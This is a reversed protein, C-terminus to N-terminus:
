AFFKVLDNATCEAWGSPRMPPVCRYVSTPTHRLLLKKSGKSALFVQMGDVFLGPRPEVSAGIRQLSSIAVRGVDHKGVAMASNSQVFKAAASQPVAAGQAVSAGMDANFKGAVCENIISFSPDLALDPILRECVSLRSAHSTAKALVKRLAGSEAAGLSLCEPPLVSRYDALTTELDKTTEVNTCRSAFGPWAHELQFKLRHTEDLQEFVRGTGGFDESSLLYIAFQYLYHKVHGFPSVAKVWDLVGDAPMSWWPTVPGVRASFSLGNSVIQDVVRKPALRFVRLLGGVDCKTRVFSVLAEVFVESTSVELAYEPYEALLNGIYILIQAFFDYSVDITNSVNWEVCVKFREAMQKMLGLGSQEDDLEVRGVFEECIRTYEAAAETLDQETEVTEIRSRISEATGLDVLPRPSNDISLATPSLLGMSEDSSSCSSGIDLEMAMGSSVVAESRAVAHKPKRISDEIVEPTMISLGQNRNRVDVAVPTPVGQGSVGLGSGHTYGMKRMMAFAKGYRKSVDDQSLLPQNSSTSM